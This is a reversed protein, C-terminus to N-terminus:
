PQARLRMERVGAEFEAMRECESYILPSADIGM